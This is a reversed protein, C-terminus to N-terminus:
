CNRLNVALISVCAIESVSELPTICVLDIELNDFVAVRVVGLCAVELSVILDIETCLCPYTPSDKVALCECSDFSCRGTRSIFYRLTFVPATM